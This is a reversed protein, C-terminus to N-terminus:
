SSSGKDNQVGDRTMRFKNLKTSDEIEPDLPRYLDKWEPNLSEILNIKWDRHWNKLQKERKIAEYVYQYEEYYVLKRLKYRSTFGSNSSLHREMRDDIGGTIGIYLVGRPKNTLIYVWYNYYARRMM